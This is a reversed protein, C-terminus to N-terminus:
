AMEESGLGEGVCCGDCSPTLRPRLGSHHNYCTSCMGNRVVKTPRNCCSCPRTDPVFRSGPQQPKAEHLAATRGDIRMHCSRCLPVCRDIEVKIREISAGQTRLSSVRDNPRDPHEENHWEVPQAGCEACYVTAEYERLWETAIARTEARREKTRM